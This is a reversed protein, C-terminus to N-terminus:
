SITLEKNSSLTGIVTDPYASYDPIYSAQIYQETNVTIGGGSGVVAGGFSLADNSQGCGCTDRATIMNSKARWTISDFLETNSFNTNSGGLTGGFALANNSVGCGGIGTRAASLTASIAAWSVGNYLETSSLLQTTYSDIRNQGGFLLANNSNGCCGLSVRNITISPANSWTSGNFLAAYNVYDSSSYMSGGFELTGNSVGCGAHMSKQNIMNSKSSWSTGDYGYTLTTIGNKTTGGFALAANVIGSGALSYTGYAGSMNAWTVGNYLETSSSYFDTSFGCFTLANNSVGCGAHDQRAKNLNAKTTWGSLDISTPDIESYTSGSKNYFVKEINENKNIKTPPKTKVSCILNYTGGDTVTVPTLDDLSTTQKIEYVVDSNANISNSRATINYEYNNYKRTNTNGNM